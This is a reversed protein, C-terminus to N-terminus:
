WNAVNAMLGDVFNPFVKALAVRSSAEKTYAEVKGEDFAAGVYRDGKISFSMGTAITLWTIHSYKHYFKQADELQNVADKKLRLKKYDRRVDRVANKSSYKNEMFQKLTKSDKGSCMLALAISEVVQRSLNGAAVTHGSLFLKLSVIHLNIATFVLDSIRARKEHDQAGTDLSRWKMFAQAMADSFLKVDAEFLKLYRTRVDSDDSTLEALIMERAEEFTEM